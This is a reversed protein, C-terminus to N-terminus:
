WADSGDGETSDYHFEDSLGSVRMEQASGALIQCQHQLQVVKVTPKSYDKKMSNNNLSKREM